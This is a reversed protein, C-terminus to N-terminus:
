GLVDMLGLVHVGTRLGLGPRSGLALWAPAQPAAWTTSLLPLVHGVGAGPSPLQPRHPVASGRGGPGASGGPGAVECCETGKLFLTKGAMASIEAYRIKLFHFFM